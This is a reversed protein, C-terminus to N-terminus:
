AVGGHAKGSSQASTDSDKVGQALAWERKGDLQTKGLSQASIDSAKAGETPARERKGNLRTKGSWQAPIDSDKAGKATARERKGDEYIPSDQEVGGQPIGKADDM